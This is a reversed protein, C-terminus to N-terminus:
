QLRTKSSTLSIIKCKTSDELEQLILGRLLYLKKSYKGPADEILATLGKLAEPYRGALIECIVINYTVEHVNLSCLGVDSLDTMNSTDSDSDSNENDQKTAKKAKISLNFDIIAKDLEGAYM